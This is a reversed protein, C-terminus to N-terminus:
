RLAETDPERTSLGITREVVKRFTAVARRQKEKEAKKKNRSLRIYKTPKAKSAAILIGEAEHVIRERVSERGSNLSNRMRKLSYRSPRLLPKRGNFFLEWLAHHLSSLFAFLRQLEGTNTKEFLKAIEEPEAAVKHAFWQHRLQEYNREYIKRYRAVLAKLHRFDHASPEYAAKVFEAIREPPLGSMRLKRKELAEKSFIGLDNRAIRILKGLNHPSGTEFIRGLAIISAAQLSATCTMWFLPNRNLFELVQAREAAVAHISIYAYFYQAAEESERRFIELERKFEDDIV